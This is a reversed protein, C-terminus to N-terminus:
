PTSADEVGDRNTCKNASRARAAEAAAAALAAHVTGETHDDFESQDLKGEALLAKVEHPLPM